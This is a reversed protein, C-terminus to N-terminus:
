NHRGPGVFFPDNTTDNGKSEELENTGNGVNVSPMGAHPPHPLPPDGCQCVRPKPALNWLIQDVQDMAENRKKNWVTVQDAWYLRESDTKTPDRRNDEIDWLRINADMLNQIAVGIKSEQAISNDQHAYNKFKPQVVMEKDTILGSVVQYYFQNIEDRFKGIVRDLIAITGEDKAVARRIMLISQKDILSGLTDM